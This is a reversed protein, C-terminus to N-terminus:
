IFRYKSSFQMIVLVITLGVILYWIINSAVIFILVGFLIAMFSSVITAQLSTIKNQILSNLTIPLALTFIPIYITVISIKILSISLVAIVFGISTNLTKEVFVKGTFFGYLLIIIFILGTCIGTISVFPNGIIYAAVSLFVLSVCPLLLFSSNQVKKMNMVNTFGVFLLLTFPIALYELEIPYGYNYDIYSVKLNGGIIIVLSAVIQGLLMWISSVKFAHTLKTSFVILVIGIILLDFYLL